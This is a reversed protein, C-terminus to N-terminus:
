YYFDGREPTDMGIYRVRETRGNLRVDITDGDIINIVSATEGTSVPTAGVVVLAPAASPALTPANSTDSVAASMACAMMPLLLAIVLGLLLRPNFRLPSQAIM